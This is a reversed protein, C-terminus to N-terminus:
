TALRSGLAAAALVLLVVPVGVTALQRRHVHFGIAVLFYATVGAAAAIGLPACWPGAALGAAGALLLVALYRLKGPPVGVRAYQEEVAPGGRLKTVASYVLIVALTFSIVTSLTWM